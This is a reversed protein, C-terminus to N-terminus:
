DRPFRGSGVLGRGGRGAGGRDGGGRNEAASPGAGAASPGSGGGGGAGGEYQRLKRVAQSYKYKLDEIEEFFDLDFAQLEGNLRENDRRLRECEAELEATGRGSTGRGSYSGGYGGHESGGTSGRSAALDARHPWYFLAPAASPPQFLLLRLVVPGM